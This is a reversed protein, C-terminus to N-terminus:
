AAYSGTLRVGGSGPVIEGAVWSRIDQQALLELARTTKDAPVVATMGVGLNLVREM